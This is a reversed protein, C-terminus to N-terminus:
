PIDALRATFWGVPLAMKGREIAAAADGFVHSAAVRGNIGATIAPSRRQRLTPNARVFFFGGPFLISGQRLNSMIMTLTPSHISDGKKSFKRASRPEFLSPIDKTARQGLASRGASMLDM